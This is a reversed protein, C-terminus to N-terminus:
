VSFVSTNCEDKFKKAAVSYGFNRLSKAIVHSNRFIESWINELLLAEFAGVEGREKMFVRRLNKSSVTRLQLYVIEEIKYRLVMSGDEQLQKAEHYLRNGEKYQNTKVKIDKASDPILRFFDKMECNYLIALACMDSFCFSGEKIFNEIQFSYNEERGLLFSIDDQSFSLAIRKVKTFYVMDFIEAAVQTFLQSSETKEKM